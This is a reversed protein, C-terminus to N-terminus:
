KKLKMYYYNIKTAGIQPHKLEVEFDNLYDPEKNLQKDTVTFLYKTNNDQKGYLFNYTSLPYHYGCSRFSQILDVVPFDYSRASPIDVFHIKSMDCGWREMTEPLDHWTSYHEMSEAVDYGFTRDGPSNGDILWIECGFSINQIAAVGAQGCGIEIIKKTSPYIQMVQYAEVLSSWTYVREFEKPFNILYKFPYAQQKVVQEMQQKNLYLTIDKM